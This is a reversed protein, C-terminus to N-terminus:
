EHDQEEPLPPRVDGKFREECAGFSKYNVRAQTLSLSGNPGGRVTDADSEDQGDDEWFCVPCIDYGGRESLTRCGCCPCHYSVGEAPGLLVSRTDLRNVYWDFWRRRQEMEEHTPTSNADAM